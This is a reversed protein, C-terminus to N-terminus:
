EVKESQSRSCFPNHSGFEPILSSQHCHFTSSHQIGYFHKCAHKPATVNPQLHRIYKTCKTRDVTKWFDLIGAVLEDKTHPKIERRICLNEIPNSDPSDPPPPPPRGGISVTIRLSPVPWGQSTNLITIRCSGTGLQSYMRFFHFFHRKWYKFM